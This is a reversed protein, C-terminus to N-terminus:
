NCGMVGLGDVEKVEADGSFNFPDDGEALTVGLYKGTFGISGGNVNLTGDISFYIAPMKFDMVFALGKNAFFDPADPSSTSDINELWDVVAYDGSAEDDFVEYIAIGNFMDEVATTDGSLLANIDGSLGLVMSVGDISPGFLNLASDSASFCFTYDINMNTEGAQVTGGGSNSGFAAASIFLTGGNSSEVWEVGESSSFNFGESGDAFTFGGTVTNFSGKIIGQSDVIKINKIKGAFEKARNIAAQDNQSSSVNATGNGPTENEKSCSTMLMVASFALAGVLSMLKINTTKIV